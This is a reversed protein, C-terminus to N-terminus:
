KDMNELINLYQKSIKELFFIKEFNMKISKKKKLYM